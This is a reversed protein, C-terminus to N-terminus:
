RPMSLGFKKEKFTFGSSIDGEGLMIWDAWGDWKPRGTMRVRRIEENKKGLGKSIAKERESGSEGREADFEGRVEVLVKGEMRVTFFVM